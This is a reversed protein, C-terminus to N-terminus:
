KSVGPSHERAPRSVELTAEGAAQRAGNQKPRENLLKETIQELERKRKLWVEGATTIGKALSLVREFLWLTTAEPEIEVPPKTHEQQRTWKDVAGCMKRIHTTLARLLQATSADVIM